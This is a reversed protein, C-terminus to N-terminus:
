DEEGWRWRWGGKTKRWCIFVFAITLVSLIGLYAVVHPTPRGPGPILLLPGLAMAVAVFGITLAWGEWSSPAAGLGYRKPKFWYESM